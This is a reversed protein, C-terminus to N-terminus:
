ERMSVEYFEVEPQINTFNKVDEILEKEAVKMISNFEEISNFFLHSVCAFQPEKGNNLESSGKVISYGKCTDKFYKKAIAIHTNCYYDMDFYSDKKNPYKVTFTIM